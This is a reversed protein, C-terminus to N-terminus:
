DTEATGADPTNGARYERGPRAPADPLRALAQLLRGLHGNTEQQISDRVYCPNFGDSEIALLPSQELVSGEIVIAMAVAQRPSLAASARLINGADKVLMEMRDFAAAGDPRIRITTASAKVGPVLMRIRAAHGREQHALDHWFMVDDPFRQGFLDYLDGM